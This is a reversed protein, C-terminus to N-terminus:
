MNTELDFKLKLRVDIELPVAFFHHLLRLPIVYENNRWILNNVNTIQILRKIHAKKVM